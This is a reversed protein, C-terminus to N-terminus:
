AYTIGDFFFISEDYLSPTGSAKQKYTESFWNRPMFIKGGNPNLFAGWWSFTSNSCILHHCRTLLCLASADTFSSFYVYGPFNEHCWMPDDSIFVVSYRDSPFHLDLTDLYYKKDLTNKLSVYDGRRVHVGVFEKTQDMNEFFDDCEKKIVSVFQYLEILDKRYPYFYKSSQFNGMVDSDDEIEFADDFHVCGWKNIIHKSLLVESTLYSKDLSFASFLELKTLFSGYDIINKIPIKIQYGHKKALVYLFGFQYMQNGLRGTYGILSNTIM